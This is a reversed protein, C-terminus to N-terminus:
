DLSPTGGSACRPHRALQNMRYPQLTGNNAPRPVLRMSLTAQATGRSGYPTLLAMGEQEVDAPRAPRSPTWIFDAYRETFSAKLRDYENVDAARIVREIKTVIYRAPLGPDTVDPLLSATVFTQLGSETTYEGRVNYFGEWWSASGGANQPCFGEYKSALSIFSNDIVGRSSTAVVAEDWFGFLKQHKEAVKSVTRPHTDFSSLQPGPKFNLHGLSDLRDGVCIDAFCPLGNKQFSQTPQPSPNAWISAALLSSALVITKKM